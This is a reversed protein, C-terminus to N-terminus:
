NESSKRIASHFPPTVIKESKNAPPSDTGDFRSIAQAVADDTIMNLRAVIWRRDTDPYRNQLAKLYNYIEATDQNVIALAANYVLRRESACFLPMEPRYGLQRIAQFVLDLKSQEEHRLLKLISAEFFAGDPQSPPSRLLIGCYDCTGHLSHWWHLEKDCHPCNFLYQKLHYPCIASTKLDKIQYERGEEFCADCFGNGKLRLFSQPILNKGIRILISRDLQKSPAYFGNQIVYAHDGAESILYQPLKSDILLPSENRFHYPKFNAGIFAGISPFGHSRATRKILSSPSEEELPRPLFILNKM